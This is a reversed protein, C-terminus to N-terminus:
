PCRDVWHVLLHPFFVIATLVCVFTLIFCLPLLVPSDLVFCVDPACGRRAAGSPVHSFGSLLEVICLNLREQRRQREM